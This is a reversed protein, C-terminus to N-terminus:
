ESLIRKVRAIAEGLAREPSIRLLSAIYPRARVNEDWDSGAAMPMAVSWFTKSIIIPNQSISILAM